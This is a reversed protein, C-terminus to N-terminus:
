DIWIGELSFVKCEMKEAKYEKKYEELKKEDKINEYIMHYLNCKAYINGNKDAKRYYKEANSFDGMKEYNVARNRLYDPYFTIKIVYLSFCILILIIGLIIRKM